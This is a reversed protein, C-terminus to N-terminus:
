QSIKGKFTFFKHGMYSLLVTAFIIIGQAVLPELHIIEVCFPLLIFNMLITVGYVVYFRLYEKIYNGKTKFVFLKYCIYANTIAIINGPILLLIYNVDASFVKYLVFYTFYGFITNWGGVILYNIKEKHKEYFLLM